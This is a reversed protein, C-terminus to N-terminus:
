PAQRGEKQLAIKIDTVIHRSEACANPLLVKTVFDLVSLRSDKAKNIERTVEVRHDGGALLLAKLISLYKIEL